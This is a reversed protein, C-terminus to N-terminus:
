HSHLNMDYGTMSGAMYFTLVRSFGLQHCIVAAGNRNFKNGCINGWRGNIYVQVVGEREDKTRNFLRVTGTATQVTSEVVCAFILSIKKALVICNQVFRPSPLCDTIYDNVFCDSDGDHIFLLFSTM